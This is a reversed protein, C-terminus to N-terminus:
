WFLKEQMNRIASRGIEPFDKAISRTSEGKFLRDTIQGRQLENPLVYSVGHYKGMAEKMKRRSEETHTHGLCNKNGILRKRIKEKCADSHKTDKRLANYSNGKMALSTRIRREDNDQWARRSSAGIIKKIEPSSNQASVRARMRAKSEESFRYGPIGDGGNTLNTLRCGISRYHAIWRREAEQWDNEVREIVFLLPKNGTRLVSQIWYFKHTRTKQTLHLVYRTEPDTTVGVYRVEQSSPDVLIYIFWPM